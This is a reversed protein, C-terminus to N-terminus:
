LRVKVKRRWDLSRLGTLITVLQTDLGRLSQISGLGAEPFKQIFNEGHVDYIDGAAATIQDAHKTHSRRSSPYQILSAYSQIWEQHPVYVGVM